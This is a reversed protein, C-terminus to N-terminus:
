EAFHIILGHPIDSVAAKQVISIIISYINKHGSLHGVAKLSLARKNIEIQLFTNYIM